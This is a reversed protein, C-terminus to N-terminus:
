ELPENRMAPAGQREVSVDCAGTGRLHSVLLAEIAIRKSSNSNSSSDDRVLFRIRCRRL